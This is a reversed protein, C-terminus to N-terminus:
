KSSEIRRGRDETGQGRVETKQGRDESRQGRDESGQMGGGLARYLSIRYDLLDARATVLKRELGQVSRLQTLFDLYDGQGKIYRLRAQERAQRAAQLEEKLRSIREQQGKERALADQVEQVAQLVVGAYEAVQEEEEALLRQIEAERSGADFLPATLDAGLSYLWDGWALSLEQSSLAGRATIDLQPLRRAKAQAVDWGSSALKLYASHVDPRSILLDAPVGARPRPMPSPLEKSELSLEGPDARGTLVALKHLAQRKQAELNPLDARSSALVERQRSVDLATGMGKQLRLRQAALLQSNIEIQEQLVRIEQELALAQVWAKAVEAAISVAAAQVDQYAAEAQLKRAERESSIRGWLDLEYAAQLGLSSSESDQVPEQDQYTRTRELSGQLNAEPWADAGAQEALARAQRLRAWASRIDFNEDLATQVLRNLEPSQWSEWWHELVQSGQYEQSYEEPLPVPELQKKQPAYPSCAQLLVWLLLLLCSRILM